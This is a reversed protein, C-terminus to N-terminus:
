GITKWQNKLRNAANLEAVDMGINWRWNATESKRKEKEKGNGNQKKIKIKKQILKRQKIRSSIFM